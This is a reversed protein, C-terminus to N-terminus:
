LVTVQSADILSEAGEGRPLFAVPIGVQLQSDAAITKSVVEPVALQTSPMIFIVATRVAFNAFLLFELFKSLPIDCSHSKM